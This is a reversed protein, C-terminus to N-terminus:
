QLVSSSPGGRGPGGHVSTRTRIMKTRINQTRANAVCVLSRGHVTHEQYPHETYPPYSPHETYPSDRCQDDTYPCHIYETYPVHLPFKVDDTYQIHCVKYETCM